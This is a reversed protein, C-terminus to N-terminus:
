QFVTYVLTHYEYHNKERKAPQPIFFVVNDMFNLYYLLHPHGSEKPSVSMNRNGSVIHTWGPSLVPIGSSLVFPGESVAVVGSTPKSDSSFVYGRLLFCCELDHGTCKQPVSLGDVVVASSLRGTREGRGAALDM